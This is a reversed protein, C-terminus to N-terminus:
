HSIKPWVYNRLIDNELVTKWESSIKNCQNTSIKVAIHWPGPSAALDRGLKALRLPNNLPM